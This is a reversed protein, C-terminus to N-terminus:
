QITRKEQADTAAESGLVITNSDGPFAVSTLIHSEGSDNMKIDMGGSSTMRKEFHGGAKALVAKTKKDTFTLEKSKDDFVLRYTGAKLPTGSVVFDQGFSVVRVTTKATATAATMILLLATFVTTKIIKM